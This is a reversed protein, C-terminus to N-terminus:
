LRCLWLIIKVILFSLRKEKDASVLSLIGNIQYCVGLENLHSGTRQFFKDASTTKLISLESFTDVYKLESAKLTPLIYEYGTLRKDRTRDKFADPLTEPYLEILNPSILPVLTIGLAKLEKQLEIAKRLFSDVREKDFPKSKNVSSLYQSQFFYGDNGVHVSNNLKASIQGFLSYYVQNGLKLGQGWLPNSKVLHSELTKQFTGQLFSAKSLPLHSNPLGIGHLSASPIFQYIRQSLPLFLLALIIGVYLKLNDNKVTESKM